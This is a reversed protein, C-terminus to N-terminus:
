IKIIKHITSNQDQSIQFFYVGSKLYSVDFIQNTKNKEFILSGINKSLSNYIFVKTDATFSTSLEIRVEDNFPNPSITTQLKKQLFDIAIISSYEYKEDFDIQKLRYYNVGVLPDLDSYQYENKLDTTGRGKEFFIKGWTIGDESRQIEFGDNNTESATKWSLDIVDKLQTARFSILEVPLTVNGSLTPPPDGAGCTGLPFQSSLAQWGSAPPTPSNTSNIYAITGGGVNIQWQSGSWFVSVQVPSLGGLNGNAIDYAPRGNLNTVFPVTVAPNFCNTTTSITVSQSFLSSTLGFTLFLLFIKM